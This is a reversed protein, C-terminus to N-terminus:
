VAPTRNVLNLILNCQLVCREALQVAFVGVCVMYLHRFMIEM